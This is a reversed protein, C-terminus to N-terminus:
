EEVASSGADAPDETEIPAAESPPPDYTFAGQAVLYEAIEDAVDQEVHPIGPIFRGPVPFIRTM